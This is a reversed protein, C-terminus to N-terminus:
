EIKADAPDVPTEKGAKVAMKKKMEKRLAEKEKQKLKDEDEDEEEDETDMEEDGSQDDEDRSQDEEDGSEGEEEDEEETDSCKKANELEEREREEEKKKEEEVQAQRLQRPGKRVKSLTQINKPDRLKENEPDEAEPPVYHETKTTDIFPSLHPPLTVGLFYKEVPVLEKANISDFVWQPQVYYRSIYQKGISPRDVIQHTITEDDEPFTAGVFMNKDWSVKAGFSRLALTLPERPVERNLFVKLGEFLRKLKRVKEADRKYAEVKEADAEANTPFYDFDAGEEEEQDLTSPPATMGSANVSIDM